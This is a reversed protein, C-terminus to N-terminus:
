KRLVVGKPSLLFYDVSVLPFQREETVVSKHARERAFAEVWEPFWSRYSLHTIRHEMRESLSPLVPTPLSKHAQVEDVPSEDVLDEIVQKESGDVSAGNAEAAPGGGSDVDRPYVPPRIVDDHHDIM